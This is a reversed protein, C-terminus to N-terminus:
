EDCYEDQDEKSVFVLNVGYRFGRFQIEGGDDSVINRIMGNNKELLTEVISQGYHMWIFDRFAASSYCTDILIECLLKTNTCAVGLCRVTEIVACAKNNYTRRDAHLRRMAAAESAKRAVGKRFNDVIALVKRKMYYNYILNRKIIQRTDVDQERPRWSDLEDEVMHCLRNMVCMGDLLPSESKMALVCRAEIESLDAVNKKAAVDCDVGYKCLASHKIAAVSKKYESNLAPYIYKMFYPKKEACIRLQFELEEKDTFQKACDRRSYWYSPMPKAVIGKIKDRKYGRNGSIENPSYVM